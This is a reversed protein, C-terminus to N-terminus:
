AFLFFFCLGIIRITGNPLVEGIDGTYFWRAGGEFRYAEQTLDPNKYYGLTLCEGGIVIEGRPNPKDRVFYRGIFHLIEFLSFM